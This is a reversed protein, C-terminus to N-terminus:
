EAYDEGIQKSQTLRVIGKDPTIVDVIFGHEKLWRADAKEIRDLNLEVEHLQEILAKKMTNYFATSVPWEKTMDDFNRYTM